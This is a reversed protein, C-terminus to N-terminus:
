RLRVPPAKSPPEDEGYDLYKATYRHLGAAVFLKELAELSERKPRSGRKWGALSPPALGILEALKEVTVDKRLIAALERRGQDIRGWVTSEAEPNPVLFSKTKGISV